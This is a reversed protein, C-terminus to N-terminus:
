SIDGKNGGWFRDVETALLQNEPHLLLPDQEIISLACRRATDIISHDTLSAFKLPAFGAQRIGLFEGPGRQELDHEALVFGDNTEIMVKLRENETAETTEPILICYSKDARRGVRGRFQHLQALGFRNAGEVLMVTANPIDVGVEVVSTSVLVNFEGARFKNMVEEKEDAKLRGHLLGLKQNPFINEQLHQYSEVAALAQSKESEEVLPYIIFAQFGEDIQSKILNYARERDLPNIIFTNITKRGPPMEDIISLDLDGYISLALSRPIPTATMVMLHPNNGKARLLARQEVGFRHQEDIIVLDLNRFQVPDELLAHTGILLKVKGEALLQRIEQKESEPTSGILLRIENETIIPSPSTSEVQSISDVPSFQDITPADGQHPQDALIRRFTTAHQEALISTPAMIAVQSNNQIVMAAIIAAVVTKGSGVDGQLLRNMPHGSALDQRADQISKKQATTLEYPLGSQQTELWEDSVTYVNATRQQWAQKQQIVGLQLLFIEDFALRIRATKLRSWSDPFHLQAIATPLDILSASQRIHKPLYDVMRPSWYPVVQNIMKRVWRQTIQGSLPYVPVIRKSILIQQDLPEPEPNHLVLRGLYQNIKGSVAYQQGNHLRKIIWPQNFWILRLAATGDSIIAEVLIKKREGTRRQNISSITGIVTVEDGFHLRNIPKLETYDDYRRPVYYLIDRLECIGLNELTQAHHPGIGNLVTVSANLEAPQSIPQSEAPAEGPIEQQNPDEIINLVVTTSQEDPISKPPPIPKPIIPAQQLSRLRFHKLPIQRKKFEEGCDKLSKEAHAPQLEQIIICIRVFQMSLNSQYNTQRPMRKGITLLEIWDALLPGTILDM